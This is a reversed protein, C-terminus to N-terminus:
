INKAQRWNKYQFIARYIFVSSGHLFIYHKKAELHYLFYHFFFDVSKKIKLFKLCNSYKFSSVGFEQLLNFLLAVLLHFKL